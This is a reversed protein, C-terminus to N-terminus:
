IDPPDDAFTFMHTVYIHKMCRTSALKLATGMKLSKIGTWFKVKRLKSPM